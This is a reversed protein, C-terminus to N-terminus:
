VTAPAPTGADGSTDGCFENIKKKIVLIIFMERETPPSELLYAAHEDKYNESVTKSDGNLKARKLDAGDALQKAKDAANALDVLQTQYKVLKAKHDELDAKADALSKRMIEDRADLDKLMDLLIKKIQDTEAYSALKSTLQDLEEVQTHGAGGAVKAKLEAVKARVAKLTAPSAKDTRADPKMYGGAAKSKEDLPQDEMIGLLRMVEQILQREASNSEGEIAFNKEMTDVRAQTTKVAEELKEYQTRAYNSGETAESAKETQLRYESEADLWQGLAEEKLRFAEIDSENLNVGQARLKALLADLKEIIIDKKPCLKGADALQNFGQVNALMQTKAMSQDDNSIVKNKWDSLMASLEPVSASPAAHMLGIALQMDHNNIGMAMLETAPAPSSAGLLAVAACMGMVLAGVVYTTRSSKRKEATGNSDVYLRFEAQEPQTTGIAM